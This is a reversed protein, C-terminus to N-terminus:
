EARLAVVAARAQALRALVDPPTQADLAEAAVARRLGDVQERRQMVSTNSAIREARLDAMRGLIDAHHQEAATLQQGAATRQETTSPAPTTPKSM